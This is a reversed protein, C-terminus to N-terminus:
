MHSKCWTVKKEWKKKLSKYYEYKKSGVNYKKMLRTYKTVNDKYIQLTAKSCFKYSLAKGANLRGAGYEFKSYNTMGEYATRKLAKKVQSYTKGKSFLLAAVGAVHPTAMSTGQYLQLSFKKYSKTPDTYTQQLIGDLYGDSNLDAYTDGGPAMIDLNNGYNSYYTRLDAYDTAGVSFSEKYAAPYALSSDGTSDIGDGYPWPRKGNGAAVTVLIGHENATQIAEEVVQVPYQFELSMTIVNAGHNIAWYIGDAVNSSLTSGDSYFVDIPIISINSAVGAVGIGNNTSQAITGAVHTGHGYDDNAHYSVTGFFDIANNYPYVFKSNALDPAKKYVSYNEYAVGTDVIAVKVSSKGRTKGWAKEMNLHNRDFNWQVPYYPDNPRWSLKGQYNPHAYKVRTDDKLLALLEEVTRGAPVQLVTYGTGKKKVIIGYNACLNGTITKFFGKKFKVVVEDSRYDSAFVLRSFSFLGAIGILFMVVAVIRLSKLVNTRKLISM